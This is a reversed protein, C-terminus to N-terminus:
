LGSSTKFRSPRGVSDYYLRLGVASSHGGVDTVKALIRLSLLDGAYFETEPITGFDLVVEKAKDPNRTVGQINLAECGAMALGNKLLEARIDFYTGQDDTNKLGVWVHLDGPSDVLLSTGSPVVYDWIGIEKFETRRLGPSDKYKATTGTPATNDLTLDPAVGHLYFDAVITPGVHFVLLGLYWHTAYAYSDSVDLPGWAGPAVYGGVRVPAAPNSVDIIHFGVPGDGVYAYGGSVQVGVCNGPTDYGGVRVPIAPNSVDIIQLGAWDDAIYAYSGSVVM